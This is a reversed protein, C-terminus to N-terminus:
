PSVDIFSGPIFTGTNVRGSSNIAGSNIDGIAIIQPETTQHFSITAVGGSTYPSFLTSNVNLTITTTTGQLIQYTNDNLQTMGSVGTITVFNGVRFSNTATLVANTAQTAGTITATYPTAVFANTNYSNIEVEVQTSTPISRVIGQKSNLQYSGFDVPILLRVQQGVVYDHDESTTVTTTQGLDIATIVFRRPEYYEAHIPVNAYLPIPYSRVTSPM